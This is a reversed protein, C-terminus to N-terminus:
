ARRARAKKNTATSRRVPKEKAPKAENWLKAAIGETRAVPTMFSCAGCIVYFRFKGRGIDLMKGERKGCKPCPGLETDESM